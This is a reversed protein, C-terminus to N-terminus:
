WSLERTASDFSLFPASPTVTMSYVADSGTCYAYDNVTFLSTVSSATPATVTYSITSDLVADM